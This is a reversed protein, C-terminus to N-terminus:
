SLFIFSLYFFITLIFIFYWILSSRCWWSSWPTRRTQPSTFIQFVWCFMWCYFWRECLVFINASAFQSLHKVKGIAIAFSLATLTSPSKNDVSQHRWLHRRQFRWTTQSVFPTAFINLIRFIVNFFTMLLYWFCCSTKLKIIEILYM